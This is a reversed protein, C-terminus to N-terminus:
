SDICSLKKSIFKKILNKTTPTLNYKIAERPRLWNIDKIEDSLSLKYQKDLKVLYVLIVFHYKVRNSSDREIFDEVDIICDPDIEIGLEEYIERKISHKSCEGLEVTGGPLSWLDKAPEYARKVILLKDKYMILAAVGVMPRPPYEKKLSIM